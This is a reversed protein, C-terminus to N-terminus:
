KVDCQYGLGLYTLEFSELVLRSASCLENEDTVQQSQNIVVGGFTQCDSRLWYVEDQSGCMTYTSFDDKCTICTETLTCTSCKRCSVLGMLMLVVLAVLLGKM